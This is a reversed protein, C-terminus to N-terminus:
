RDEPPEQVCFRTCLHIVGDPYQSLHRDPYEYHCLVPQGSLLGRMGNPLRGKAEPVVYGRYRVTEHLGLLTFWGLVIMDIM